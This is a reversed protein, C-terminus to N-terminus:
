PQEGERAHAARDQTPYLLVAPEVRDPRWDAQTTVQIVTDADPGEVLALVVEDAPLRVAAVLRVAGPLQPLAAGGSGDADYREVAFLRGTVTVGM